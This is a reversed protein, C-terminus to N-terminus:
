LFHTIIVVLTANPYSLGGAKEKGARDSNASKVSGIDDSTIAKDSTGAEVQM